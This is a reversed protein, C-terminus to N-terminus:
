ARSILGRAFNARNQLEFLQAGTDLGAPEATQYTLDGNTVTIQMFGSTRTSKVLLFLLGLFLFLFGLVALVIAWGPTYREQKTQDTIWIQTGTLPRTGQPTVLYHDTLYFDGFRVLPESSVAVPSTAEGHAVISESAVIPPESSPVDTSQPSLPSSESM